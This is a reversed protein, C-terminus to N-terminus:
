MWLELRVLLAAWLLSAPSPMLVSEWPMIRLLADFRICMDVVMALAAAQEENLAKCSM